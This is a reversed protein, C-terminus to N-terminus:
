QVSVQDWAKVRRHLRLYALVGPIIPLWYGFARYGLVATV